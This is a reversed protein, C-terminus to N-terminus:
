HPGRGPALLIRDPVVVSLRVGQTWYEKGLIQVDRGVLSDLENDRALVYCSHTIHGVKDTMILVYSSPRKMVYSSYGVRGTYDVPTGQEMSELLDEPKLLARPPPAAGRPASAGASPVRNTAVPAPLVPAAKPKSEDRSEVFTRRVWVVCGPPPAIRSWEGSTERVTVKDGRKLVAVRKFATGPGARVQAKSATVTDGSILERHVWVHIGTPASVAVWDGDLGRVAVLTDGRNVQGVLEAQEGASARLNVRDALVRVDTGAHCLLGSLPLLCLLVPLVRQGGGSVWPVSDNHRPRPFATAM